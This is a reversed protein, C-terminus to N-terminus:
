MPPDLHEDTATVWRLTLLQRARDPMPALTTSMKVHYTRTVEDHETDIRPLGRGFEDVAVTIFKRALALHKNIHRNRERPQAIRPCPWLYPLIKVRVEVMHTKELGM